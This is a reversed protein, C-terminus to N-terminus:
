RRALLREPDGFKEVEEVTVTRVEVEALLAEAEREGAAVLGEARGACRAHYLACLPQPSGDPRVPVIAEHGARIHVLYRVLEASPHALDASLVIAHDDGGGEGPSRPVLRAVLARRVAAGVAALESPAELLHVGAQVCADAADGFALVPDAFEGLLEALRRVEQARAATERKLAIIAGLMVM